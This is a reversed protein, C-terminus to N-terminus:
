KKAPGSDTPPFATNMWEKIDSSSPTQSNIAAVETSLPTAPALPLGHLQTLDGSLARSIAVSLAIVNKQRDCISMILVLQQNNVEVIQDNDKHNRSKELISLRANIDLGNEAMQLRHINDRLDIMAQQLVGVAYTGISKNFELFEGSVLAEDLFRTSLHGATNSGVLAFMGLWALHKAKYSSVDSIGGIFRKRAAEAWAYAPRITGNSHKELLNGTNSELERQLNAALAVRRLGLSGGLHTHLADIIDRFSTFQHIWNAPPLAGGSKAAAKMEDTRAIETLFSFIAEGDTLIRSQHYTISSIDKKSLNHEQAYENKLLLSLAKRDERADWVSKRVFVLLKLPGSKAREYARRYEMMTITTKTSEEYWGGARSGILLIFYQANDIARLCAEYSNKDPERRFDNFESADVEYGLEELWYKISSRLDSFDYITSSLFVRPPTSLSRM